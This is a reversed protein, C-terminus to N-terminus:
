VFGQEVLYECFQYWIEVKRQDEEPKRLPFMGGQGNPNYTRWVFDYLIDDIVSLDSENIQRYEDLNLNRLFEWFWEKEPRETQFTARRSFAIFLELLSCPMNIWEPEVEILAERLFEERLEVGDEARNRDGQILWVFETTHLIRMLDLYVTLRPDIVKACLWNFYSEDVPENM